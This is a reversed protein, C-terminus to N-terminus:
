AEKAVGHSDLKKYYGTAKLDRLYESAKERGEENLERYNLVLEKERVDDGEPLGYIYDVSVGFYKALRVVTDIHLKWVDVDEKENFLKYTASKGLGCVKIIESVSVNRADRLMILRKRVEDM